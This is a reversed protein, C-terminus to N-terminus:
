VGLLAQHGPLTYVLSHTTGQFNSLEYPLGCYEHAAGESMRCTPQKTLGVGTSMLAGMPTNLLQANAAQLLSICLLLAWMPRAAMEMM